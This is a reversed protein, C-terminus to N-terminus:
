PNPRPIPWPWPWSSDGSDGALAAVARRRLDPDNSKLAIDLVAQPMTGMEALQIFLINKPRGDPRTALGIVRQVRAVITLLFVLPIGVWYDIVRM